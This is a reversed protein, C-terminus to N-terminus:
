AFCRTWRSSGHLTYTRTVRVPSHHCRSNTARLLIKMEVMAALNSMDMMMTPRNDVMQTLHLDNVKLLHDEEMEQIAHSICARMKPAIMPITRIVTVMVNNFLKSAFIISPRKGQRPRLLNKIFLRWLSASEAKVDMALLHTLNKVDIAVNMMINHNAKMMMMMGQAISKTLFQGQFLNWKMMKLVITRRKISASM